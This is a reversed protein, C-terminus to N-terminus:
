ALSLLREAHAYGAPAGPDIVGGQRDAIPAMNLGRERYDFGGNLKVHATRTWSLIPDAETVDGTNAIHATAPKPTHAM